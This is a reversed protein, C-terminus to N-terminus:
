NVLVFYQLRGGTTGTERLEIYHEGVTWSIVSSLDLEGTNWETTGDVGWDDNAADYMTAGKSNPDGVTATYQTGDIWIEVAQPVATTAVQATAGATGIQITQIPGSIYGESAGAPNNSGGITSVDGARYLYQGDAISLSVGIDHKHTSHDHQASFATTGGQNAAQKGYLYMRVQPTDGSSLIHVYFRARDGPGVMYIGQFTQKNNLEHDYLVNGDTFREVVM